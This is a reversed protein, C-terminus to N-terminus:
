DKGIKADDLTKFCIFSTKNDKTIYTFRLNYEYELKVLIDIFSWNDDLKLLVVLGRMNENKKVNHVRFKTNYKNKTDISLSRAGIKMKLMKENAAQITLQDFVPSNSLFSLKLNFFNASTEDVYLTQLNKLEDESLNMQKCFETLVNQITASSHISDISILNM